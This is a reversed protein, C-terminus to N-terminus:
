PVSFTHTVKHLVNLCADLAHLAIDLTVTEHNCLACEDDLLPHLMDLGCSLIPPVCLSLAHVHAHKCTHTCIHACTIQRNREMVKGQDRAQQRETQIDTQRDTGRQRDRQRDTQGREEEREREAGWVRKFESM